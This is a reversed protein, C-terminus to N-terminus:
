ILSAKSEEIKQLGEPTTIGLAKAIEGTSKNELVKSGSDRLFREILQEELKLVDSSDIVGLRQATKEVSIESFPTQKLSEQASELSFDTLEPVAVSLTCYDRDTVGMNVEEASNQINEKLAHLEASLTSPGGKLLPEATAIFEHCAGLFDESTQMMKIRHGLYVLPNLQNQPKLAQIMELTTQFDNLSWFSDAKSLSIVAQVLQNPPLSQLISPSADVLNTADRISELFGMVRLMVDAPLVSLHPDFFAASARGEGTRQPQTATSEFDSDVSGEDSSDSWAPTASLSRPSLPTSVDVSVARKSLRETDLSSSDASRKKSQRANVPGSGSAEGASQSPAPSSSRTAPVFASSM